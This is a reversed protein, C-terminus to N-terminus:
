STKPSESPGSAPSPADPSEQPWQPTPFSTKAVVKPLLDKSPDKVPNAPALAVKSFKRLLDADSKDVEEQTDAALKREEDTAMLTKWDCKGFASARRATDEDMCALHGECIAMLYEKTQPLEEPLDTTMFKGHDGTPNGHEDRDHCMSVGVFRRIGAKMAEFDTVMGSRHFVKLTTQQAAADARMKEHVNRGM